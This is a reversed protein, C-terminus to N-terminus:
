ERAEINVLAAAVALSDDTAEGTVWRGMDISSPTSVAFPLTTVTFQAFDIRSLLRALWPELDPHTVLLLDKAARRVGAMQGIAEAFVRVLEPEALVLAKQLAECSETSCAERELMRLSGLIEDPLGSGGIRALITRIGEPVVRQEFTAGRVSIIHTAEAGMDVVLYHRGPVASERALTTLARIGSRWSIRAVPFIKHLASQIAGSVAPDCASLYSVVEIQHASKGAPALSPYGNLEVRMVSAELLAAPDVKPVTTLSEHALKGIMADTIREDQPFETGARISRTQMWPAHIVVVVTHIPARHGKETYSALAASGAQEVQGGIQSVAQEPTRAELTLASSGSAMVTGPGDASTCLIAVKASGPSVDVVAVAQSRSRTLHM